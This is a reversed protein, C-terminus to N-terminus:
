KAELGKTLCMEYLKEATNLEKLGWPSDILDEWSSYQIPNGDGGGPSRGLGPASGMDITDGANAPLSRLM